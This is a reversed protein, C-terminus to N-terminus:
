SIQEPHVARRWVPRRHTEGKAEDDQAAGLSQGQPFELSCCRVSLQKFPESCLTTGCYLAAWHPKWSEKSEPVKRSDFSWNLVDLHEDQFFQFIDCIKDDNTLRGVGEACAPALCSSTAKLHQRGSLRESDSSDKSIVHVINYENGFTERSELTKLERKFSM